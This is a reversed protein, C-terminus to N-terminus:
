MIKQYNSNTINVAMNKSPVQITITNSYNTGDPLTAFQVALSMAQSPDDLYTNVNLGALKKTNMNFDLAM